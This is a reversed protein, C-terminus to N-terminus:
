HRTEPVGSRFNDFCETKVTKWFSEGLANDYCNGKRSMSQRIQAEELLLRFGESAYQRGRDSHHVGDTAAACSSGLAMTAADKVLATEM